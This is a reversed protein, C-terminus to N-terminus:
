NRHSELMEVICEQKQVNKHSIAIAKHDNNNLLQENTLIYSATADSALEKYKNLLHDTEEVSLSKITEILQKRAKHEAVMVDQVTNRVSLLDRSDMDMYEYEYEAADLKKMADTWQEILADM